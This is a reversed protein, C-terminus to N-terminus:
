VYSAFAEGIAVRDAGSGLLLTLLLRAKPGTLTGAGIAGRALLDTESGPFGYTHTFTPGTHVRTALVVPMTPVLEGVIPAVVDPVHGAGMGQLVVGRYGLRALERLMRGDDGLSMTVLAVPVDGRAASLAPRVCTAPRVRVRARQEIVHGVPGVLPSTFASPLATHSKQVFRACHIEDNLVVLTGLGEAGHSAAVITASLINAPGDAGTAEAGRMAGTVVVTKDSRMALDLLFATEEITDTGQVVVVGDIDAALRQDALRAVALVDDVVLSAGPKTMPSVAEVHAVQDIGPVARVLDGGSLAPMIAGSADRKMSITGGLAILLVKRLQM